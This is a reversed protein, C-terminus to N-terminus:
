NMFRDSLEIEEIQTITRHRNDEDETFTVSLATRYGSFLHLFNKSGDRRPRRFM